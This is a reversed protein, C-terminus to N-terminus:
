PKTSTVWAPFLVPFLYPADDVGFAHENTLSSPRATDDVGCAHPTTEMMRAPPANVSTARHTRAQVSSIRLVGPQRAGGASGRHCAPFLGALSDHGSTTSRVASDPSAHCGAGICKRHGEA